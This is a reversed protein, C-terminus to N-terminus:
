PSSSLTYATMSTGSPVVLLGDGAALGALQGSLNSTVVAGPLTAQWAQQGTGGDVAYLNGSASGIFVYQNVVIPAGILQGDGVFSWAASGTGLTIGQLTGNQLFYGTSATFAAPVSASYTGTATGTGAAFVDGSYGTLQDPSYVQQNVVAPMSGGGLHGQCAASSQSWIAGGTGPNFDYTWCPYSVYVGDAAVAPVSSGYQVGASWTLAGTSEELSFLTGFPTLGTAATGTFGGATIFVQGQTATPTGAYSTGSLSTSWVQGGSDASLAV